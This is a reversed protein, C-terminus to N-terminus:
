FDSEVTRTYEISNASKNKWEPDNFHWNDCVWPSNAEVHIGSTKITLTSKFEEELITQIAAMVLWGHDKLRYHPATTSFFEDEDPEDRDSSFQCVQRLVALAAKALITQHKGALDRLGAKFTPAAHFNSFDITLHQKYTRGKWEDLEVHVYQFLAFDTKAAKASADEAEFKRKLSTPLTVGSVPGTRYTNLSGILLPFDISKGALHKNYYETAAASAPGFSLSGTQIVLEDEFVALSLAGAM